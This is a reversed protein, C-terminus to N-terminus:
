IKVQANKECWEKLIKGVLWNLKRDQSDAVEQLKAVVGRNIVFTKRVYNKGNEKM